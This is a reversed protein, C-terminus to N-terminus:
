WDEGEALHYSTSYDVVTDDATSFFADGSAVNPDFATQDLKGAGKVQIGAPYFFRSAQKGKPPEFHSTEKSHKDGLKTLPSSAGKFSLRLKYGVDQVGEGYEIAGDPIATRLFDRSPVRITMYGSAATGRSVSLFFREAWKNFSEREEWSIFGLTITFSSGTTVVPYFSQYERAEETNSIIGLGFELSLARIERTGAGVVSFSANFGYDGKM